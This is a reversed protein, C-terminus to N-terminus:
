RTNKNEEIFEDYASVPVRWYKRPTKNGKPNADSKLGSAINV